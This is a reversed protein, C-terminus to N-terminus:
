GFKVKDTDEDHVFAKEEISLADIATLLDEHEELDRKAQSM